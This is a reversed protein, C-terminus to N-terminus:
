RIVVLADVAVAGDAVLEAVPEPSRNWVRVTHGAALLRRAMARGMGGLGIFGVDM